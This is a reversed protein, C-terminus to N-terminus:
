LSSGTRSSRRRYSTKRSSTRGVISPRGPRAVFTQYVGPRDARLTLTNTKGPLTDIKGGLQPVWISHIVDASIANIRVDRGVPIRIENATEFQPDRYRVEWWFQHGIVDIM